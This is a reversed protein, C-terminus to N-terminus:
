PTRPRPQRVPPVPRRSRPAPRPSHSQRSHPVARKGDPSFVLDHVQKLETAISKGRKLDPWTYTKVGAQSGTLLLTEAPDFAIATIPPEAALISGALTL